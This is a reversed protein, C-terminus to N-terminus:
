MNVLCVNEFFWSGRVISQDVWSDSVAPPILGFDVRVRCDYKHCQLWEIMLSM